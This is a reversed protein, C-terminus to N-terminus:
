SKEYPDRAEKLDITFDIKKPRGYGDFETQTEAIRTIYYHGLNNGKQDVLQHAQGTNALKSLDDIVTYNKTWYPLFFGSLSITNAAPGVFDHAPKAGIVDHSAFRWGMTKSLQNHVASSISFLFSGLILMVHGEPVNNNVAVNSSDFTLDVGLPDTFASIISQTSAVVNGLGVAAVMDDVRATRLAQAWKQLGADVVLGHAHSLPQTAHEVVLNIASKSQSLNAIQDM